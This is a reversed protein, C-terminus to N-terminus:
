KGTPSTEKEVIKVIGYTIGATVGAILAWGCPTVFFCAPSKCRLAYGPKEEVKPLTLCVMQKKLKIQILTDVNYDKGKYQIGVAYTGPLINPIKYAGNNKTKESQYTKETVTERLLVVADALPKKGDEGYVFGRLLGLDDQAPIAVTVITMFFSFLVILSASKKFAYKMKHRRRSFADDMNYYLLIM